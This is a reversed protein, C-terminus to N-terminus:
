ATRARALRLSAAMKVLDADVKAGSAQNRRQGPHFGVIHCDRAHRGLMQHLAAETVKGKDAVFVEVPRAPALRGEDSEHLLCM